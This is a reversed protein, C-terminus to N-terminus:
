GVDDARGFRRGPRALQGLPASMSSFECWVERHAARFAESAEEITAFSGLHRMRGGRRIQAQWRNRNPYVGKVGSAAWASTNAANQSQTALRLNVIRNDARDRNAHDIQDTPWEGHTMAWAIRHAKHLRGNISIHVYGKGNISGAMKGACRSNVAASVDARWKWTFLGTEPDYALAAHLEATTLLQAARTTPTINDDAMTASGIRYTTLHGLDRECRPAPAAKIACFGGRNLAKRGDNAGDRVRARHPM